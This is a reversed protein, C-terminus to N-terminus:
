RAAAKKPILRDVILCLAVTIVMDVLTYGVVIDVNMLLRYLIVSIIAVDVIDFISINFTQIYQYMWQLIDTM